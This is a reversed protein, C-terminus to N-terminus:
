IRFNQSLSHTVEPLHITGTLIRKINNYVAIGLDVASSVWAVNNNHHYNNIFLIERRHTFKLWFVRIEPFPEATPFLKQTLEVM